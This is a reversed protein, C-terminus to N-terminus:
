VNLFSPPHSMRSFCTGAAAGAAAAGIAPLFISPSHVAKAASEPVFPTGRASMGCILASCRPAM